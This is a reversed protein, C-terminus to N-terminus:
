SSPLARYLQNSLVNAPAGWMCKPPWDLQRQGPWFLYLSINYIHTSHKLIDRSLLLVKSQLGPLAAAAVAFLGGLVWGLRSVFHCSSSDSQFLFCSAIHSDPFLFHSLTRPSRNPPIALCSYYMHMHKRVCLSHDTLISFYTLVEVM